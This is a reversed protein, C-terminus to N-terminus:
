GVAATTAPMTAAIEDSPLSHPLVGFPTVDIGLASLRTVFDPLGTFDRFWLEAPPRLEVEPRLATQLQTLQNFSDNILEAFTIAQVDTRQNAELEALLHAEAAALRAAQRKLMDPDTIDRNFLELIWGGRVMFIQANHDNAVFECMRKADSHELMLSQHRDRQNWLLNCLFQEPNHDRILPNAALGGPMEHQDNAFQVANKKYLRGHAITGTTRALWPEFGDFIHAFGIFAGYPRVTAPQHEHAAAPFRGVTLRGNRGKCRRERAKDFLLDLGFESELSRSSKSKKNKLFRAYLKDAGHWVKRVFFHDTQELMDCHDDYFLHPKGQDDFKSLTLSRSVLDKSHKRALTPIYGEDPIWCKRFYRDYRPKQPDNLIAKLTRRSLCWWQSGLHPTLGDPIQRTIGLRRQVEISADFLLRQRKFSFPFYLTFREASLGDVVWNEAEANHSEVFDRGPQRDLFELLESIPRVPLCSGSIQTVHSVNPWRKLLTQSARMGAEVLSFRGWECGIRESFEIHANKILSARLDEFARDDAKADVHIVVKVNRSAIAKALARTRHLHEHALIIVGITM